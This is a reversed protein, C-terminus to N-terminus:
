EADRLIHWRYVGLFNPNGPIPRWRPSPHEQLEEVTVRRVEGKSGAVPGTHYIVWAQSGPEFQSKGLFIMVHFPLDQELQRFFLLDGPQARRSDRGILHTNFRRLTQADAFQAFVGNRLDESRFAGAKVRFLGAGLPTFPYHYKQVPPVNPVAELHLESAWSGDHERLAERYAFRILGACDNIELPLQGRSRYFQAEALFTFWNRFARRDAEDALRLFDPTGDRARDSPDLLTEFRVRATAFGEGRAEIVVPGPLIGARVVAEVADKASSVQEIRARRGGEVIEIKLESLRPARGNTARLVLKASSFGDAPLQLPTAELLFAPPASPLARGLVLVMVLASLVAAPGLWALATKSGLM